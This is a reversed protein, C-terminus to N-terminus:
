FVAIGCQNMYYTNRSWGPRQHYVTKFDKLAEEKKDIQYYARGRYFLYIPQEGGIEIASNLYSLADGERGEALYGLGMGFLADPDEPDDDIIEQFGRRSSVIDGALFKLVADTKKGMGDIVTGYMDMSGKDIVDEKSPQKQVLLSVPIDITTISTSPWSQIEENLQNMSKEIETKPYGLLEAKQYAQLARQFEGVRYYISGKLAYTKPALSAKSISGLTLLADQYKENIAYVLASSFKATDNDQIKKFEEIAEQDECTAMLIGRILTGEESSFVDSPLECDPYKSLFYQTSEWLAPDEIDITTLLEEIMFRNLTTNRERDNWLDLEAPHFFLDVFLNSGRLSILIQRKEHTYGGTMLAESMLSFDKDITSLAFMSAWHEPDSSLAKELCRRAKITDGIHNYATALVFWDDASSKSKLATKMLDVADLGLMIKSLAARRRNRDNFDLCNMYASLAKSLDEKYFYLDGLYTYVEQNEPDIKKAKNYYVEAGETDGLLRRLHGRELLEEVSDEINQSKVFYSTTVASLIIGMGLIITNDRGQFFVSIPLYLLLLLSVVWVLLALTDRSADSAKIKTIMIGGAIAGLSTGIFIINVPHIYGQQYSVELQLAIMTVASIIFLGGLAGTFSLSFKGLFLHFAGLLIGSLLIILLAVHIYIHAYFGYNIVILLLITVELGLVNKWPPDLYTNLKDVPMSM